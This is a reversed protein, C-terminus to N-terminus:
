EGVIKAAPVTYAGYGCGFDLVAQGIRVGIRKLVKIALSEIEM